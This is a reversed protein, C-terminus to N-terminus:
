KELKNLTILTTGEFDDKQTVLEIKNIAQQLTLEKKEIHPFM